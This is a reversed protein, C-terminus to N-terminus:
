RSSRILAWWLAGLLLAVFAAVALGRLGGTAVGVAVAGVALLWTWRPVKSPGLPRRSPESNLTVGLHFALCWDRRRRLWDCADLRHNRAWLGALSSCGTCIRGGRELM